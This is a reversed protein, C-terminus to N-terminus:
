FDIFIRTILGPEVDVLIATYTSSFGIKNRETFCEASSIAWNASILSCSGIRLFTTNSSSSCIPIGTSKSAIMPRPPNAFGTDPPTYSTFSCISLSLKFAPCLCAQSRPHTIACAMALSMGPHRLKMASGPTTSSSDGNARILPEGWIGRTHIQCANFWLAIARRNALWIPLFYSSRFRM